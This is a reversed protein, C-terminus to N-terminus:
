FDSAKMLDRGQAVSPAGRPQEVTVVPKAAPAHQDRMARTAKEAAASWVRIVGVIPQKTDPHKRSWTHLTQVGTVQVNAHNRVTTLLASTVSKMDDDQKGYGDPLREAQRLLERGTESSSEYEMSGQLFQAIQGDARVVAQELAARRYELAVAPDSGTYDSAWQAFSVVVPLGNEDFMRRVGFDRVLEAPNAYLQSLDQARTPDPQIEGHATQVERALEKLSPCVVAVVGIAYNGQGDHGEFTQMTVLGTLEGM